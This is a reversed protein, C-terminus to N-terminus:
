PTTREAAITGDPNPPAAVPTVLKLDLLIRRGRFGQTLNMAVHAVVSPVLSGTLLVPVALLAGGVATQAVAKPGLYAHGLAFAATALLFALLTSGSVASLLGLCFGRYVYEEAVGAVLCLAIFALTEEPRRPVLPGPGASLPAGRLRRYLPRALWSGGLAVYTAAAWGALPAPSPILALARLGFPEGFLELALTTAGMALLMAGAFLYLKLRSRRHAELRRRGRASTVPTVALLVAVWLLGLLRTPMPAAWSVAGSAAGTM